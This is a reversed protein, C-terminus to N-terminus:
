LYGKYLRIMDIVCKWWRWVMIGKDDHIWSIQKFKIFWDMSITLWPQGPFSCVPFGYVDANRWTNSQFDMMSNYNWMKGVTTFFVLTIVFKGSVVMTMAIIERLCGYNYICIEIYIYIYIYIWSSIYIYNYIYICITEKFCGYDIWTLEIM